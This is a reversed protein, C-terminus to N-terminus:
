WKCNQNRIAMICNFPSKAVQTSCPADNNQCKRSSWPHAKWGRWKPLTRRCRLLIPNTRQTRHRTAMRQRCIQRQRCPLTKNGSWCNIKCFNWFRTQSQYNRRRENIAASLCLTRTITTRQMASKRNIAYGNEKKGMTLVGIIRRKMRKSVRREM